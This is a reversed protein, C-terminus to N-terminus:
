EGFFMLFYERNVINRELKTSLSLLSSDSLLRERYLKCKIGKDLLELSVM